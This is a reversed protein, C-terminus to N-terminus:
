KQKEPSPKLYNKELTEMGQLVSKILKMSPRGPTNHQILLLLADMKIPGKRLSEVGQSIERVKRELEILLAKERSM